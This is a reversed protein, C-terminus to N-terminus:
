LGSQVVFVVQPKVSFHADQYMHSSVTCHNSLSNLQSNPKVTFNTFSVDTPVHITFPSQPYFMSQKNRLFESHLFNVNITSLNPLQSSGALQAVCCVLESVIWQVAVGCVLESVIWQVAVGCVLESVIWQVVAGCLIVLRECGVGVQVWM